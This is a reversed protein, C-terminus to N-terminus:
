LSKNSFRNETRKPIYIHTLNSPQIIIRHKVLNVSLCHPTLPISGVDCQFDMYLVYNVKWIFPEETDM